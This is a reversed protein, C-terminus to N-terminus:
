RRVPTFLVQGDFRPVRKLHFPQIAFPPIFVGEMKRIERYRVVLVKSSEPREEARISRIEIEFSPRGREGLFVGVVMDKNFDVPPVNALRSSYPAMAKEWFSQWKDAHRFVANRSDTVGCQVGRWEDSKVIIEPLRIGAPPEPPLVLKPLPTNSLEPDVLTLDSQSTTESLLTTLPEEAWLFRAALIFMITM